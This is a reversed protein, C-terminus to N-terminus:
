EFRGNNYKELIKPNITIVFYEQLVKVIKEIRKKRIEEM